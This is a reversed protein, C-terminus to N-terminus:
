RINALLKLLSIDNICFPISPNPQINKITIPYLRQDAGIIQKMTMDPNYKWLRVFWGCGNPNDGYLVGDTRYYQEGRWLNIQQFSYADINTDINNSCFTKINKITYRDVIEDCDVWLIWDPTKNMNHIYKLLTEKHFTEKLWENKNGLIIHETYKKALEVSNDTSKDDYIIIEDAWQSCNDLCRKLHGTTEENYM